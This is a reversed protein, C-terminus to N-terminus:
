PAKNKIYQVNRLEDIKINWFTAQVVQRKKYVELYKQIKKDLNCYFGDEKEELSFILEWTKEIQKNLGPQPLPKHDYYNTEKNSCIKDWFKEEEKSTYIAWYNLVFHWLNFDSLLIDKENKEITLLVNAQNRCYARTRLDVKKKNLDGAWAWAWFLDTESNQPHIKRKIMEKKLWDYSQKFTWYMNDDGYESYDPCSFVISDKQLSELVSVPQITQLIM